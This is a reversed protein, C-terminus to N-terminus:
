KPFPKKAQLCVAFKKVNIPPHDGDVPCQSYNQLLLFFCFDSGLTLPHPPYETDDHMATTTHSPLHDAHKDLDIEDARTKVSHM